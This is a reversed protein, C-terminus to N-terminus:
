AKREPSQKIQSRTGYRQRAEAECKKRKAKLKVRCVKLAKALKAARVQAVTKPKPSSSAPSSAPLAEINEGVTPPSLATSLAPASGLPGQCTEESCTVQGAPAAFGGSERADYWSVQTDTDQPVLQETTAFFINQGSESIGLLRSGEGGKPSTGTAEGGPSILYVNGAEYEYLNEGGTVAFPTLSDQSMFVVTGDISVALGSTESAPLANFSAGEPRRPAVPGYETTNGDCNYGEEVIRTTGCEYGGASQQGISVRVVAGSEAEYEFLQNVTSTDKTGDLDRPSEFVLFRGNITTDVATAERAVFETGGTVTDYAYLNPTGNQAEEGNANPASTLVAVSSFYVREGNGSVAAASTVEAGEGPTPDGDAAEGESIMVLRKLEPPEDIGLGDLEAEYLNSGTGKDVDLLPQATTFFVKSGTTSAGQYYAPSRKAGSEAMEDERCVGSCEKERASTMAPESLGVTHRANVRAYLEDVPVVPATACALATFYVVNGSESIAGSATTADSAGSQVDGLRTGCRSIPRASENVHPKRELTAEEVLSEDNSVGVLVPESEGIGDYEYLSRGGALTEDGPWTQKADAPVNLLVHTLEASAGQVGGVKPESAGGQSPEHGPAALPGVVAFHSDPERIAIVANNATFVGNPPAIPLEEGAQTPFQLEWLSRNFAVSPFDFARRPALSAPPDLAEVGWGDPGRSFEYDAGDEFGNNELNGTEAFGGFDVSVLHEGDASMPPLQRLVGRPATGGGYSPSVLEYSRCDPLYSRFGPSSETAPPCGLVNVDGAAHALPCLSLIFCLYAASVGAFLLRRSLGISLVAGRHFM